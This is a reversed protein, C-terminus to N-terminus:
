DEEYFARYAERSARVDAVSAMEYPAHLSLLAPGLDLVDMGSRALYKAVTGGGRRREIPGAHVNGNM